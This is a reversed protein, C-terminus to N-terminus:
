YADVKNKNIKDVEKLEIKTKNKKFNNV